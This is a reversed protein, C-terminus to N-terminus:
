VFTGNCGSRESFIPLPMPGGLFVFCLFGVELRLNLLEPSPRVAPADGPWVPPSDRCFAGAWPWGCGFRFASPLGGRAVEGKVRNSIFASFLGGLAAGITLFVLWATLPSKEGRIYKSFYANAKAHEPAVLKVGATAIRTFSASSGLGRGMSYFSFLLILGLLAGILYPNSYRDNM